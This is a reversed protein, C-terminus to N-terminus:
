QAQTAEDIFHFLLLKYKMPNNPPNLSNMSKFHEFIVQCMTPVVSTITEYM